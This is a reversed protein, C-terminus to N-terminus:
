SPTPTSCTSCTSSCPSGTPGLPSLDERGESRRAHRQGHPPHRDARRSGPDLRLEVTAPGHPRIATGISPPRAARDPRRWPARYVGYAKANWMRFVHAGNPETNILDNPTLPYPNQRVNQGFYNNAQNRSWTHAFGAVLSWRGRSRRTGVVDLTWHRADANPVNRVINVAQGVARRCSAATSTRGTTPPGSRATPVRTLSECRCPFRPSHDSANQRLFQQQEERWTLGARLSMVTGLEREIATTAERVFPLQLEPDLQEITRGGRTDLPGGEEGPEWLGSGNADAWTYRRWWLSANPNANFATAVGPNPWYRSYSVKVVTRGDGAPDLILGLRPSFVNWDVINDVAAFTQPTPNFRGVPHEQAPLYLRYRDFRAGLNLTVHDNVRWVDNGFAAHAWFGAESRSPTELLYVERPTGNFVVHLVDGPFGQHWIDAQETRYSEAGGKLDHTGWGTVFYNASGFLQDRRIRDEFDRHGGRVLARASMRSARTGSRQATRAPELWITRSASRHQSPRRADGAVGRQRGLWSRISQHDVGRVSQHSVIADPHHARLAGTSVAPTSHGVQTYGIIKHRSTVQITAKGSYNTARNQVPRAPFNIYRAAVDQDRLSGYWWARSKRIFGGADLNVDRYSWLRNADRPGLGGGHPAGRAIQDPDINFSQWARNEYDAYVSGRYRDGGSKAIFQSQVGPKPWEATHAATTVLVEDFSGYDFTFGTGQVGTTDIGEVMPRNSGSTGFATTGVGSAATNGGVDFTTVQVAPTAAFIASM